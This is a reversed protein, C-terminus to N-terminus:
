AVRSCVVDVDCTSCIYCVLVLVLLVLESSLGM